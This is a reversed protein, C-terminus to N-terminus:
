EAKTKQETGLSKIYAIIQALGDETILGKFTPMVPEYGAAIKAQPDVISERIYAEDAIVTQKTALTVKKGFLGVLSPARGKGDPLHCGICGFQQFLRLGAAAPSEIMGGGRLWAEYASPEMVVIRGVMDAHSTGCYQTCFLRYEGAKTAQFWATTYRGPLVDKKIRFAPVFFSHIVDESTMTLKVTRGVPVHLENIERQGDPHQLKWMWQKGVVFIEIADAPPSSLSIYVWAGWGFMVMALALPIITWTLELGLSGHIPRPREDASRRRYKIAFVTVLVFILGAFFVSVAVLFLLLADVQGAMTSAREPLFRVGTWM